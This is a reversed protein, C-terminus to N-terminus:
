AAARPRTLAAAPDREIEVEIGDGLFSVLGGAAGSEPLVNSYTWAVDPLTADGARVSWYTAVGKYPCISTKESPVLLDQRV